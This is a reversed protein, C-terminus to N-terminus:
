KSFSSLYSLTISSLSPILILDLTSRALHITRMAIDLPALTSTSILRADRAAGASNFQAYYYGQAHLYTCTRTTVISHSSGEILNTPMPFSMECENWTSPIVLFGCFMLLQYWLDAPLGKSRYAPVTKSLAGCFTLFEDRTLLFPQAASGGFLSRVKTVVPECPRNVLYHQDLSNTRATIIPLLDSWEEALAAGLLMGADHADFAGCPNARWFDDIVVKMEDLGVRKLMSSDYTECPRVRKEGRKVTTM